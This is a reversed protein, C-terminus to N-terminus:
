IFIPSGFDYLTGEFCVLEVKMQECFSRIPKCDPHKDIDGWFYLRGNFFTSAGGIFGTDFGDLDVYGPTVRLVPIGNKEASFAIGRDSTIIGKGCVAVSCKSYGQKVDVLNLSLKESEEIIRRDTYRQNCILYDGVRVANYLVNDPYEGSSHRYGPVSCSLYSSVNPDCVLLEGLDCVMLDVHYSLRGLSVNEPIRILDFGCFSSFTRSSTILRM